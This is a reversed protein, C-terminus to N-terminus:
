NGLPFLIHRVMLLLLQLRAQLHHTATISRALIGGERHLLSEQYHLIVSRLTTEKLTWQLPHRGVMPCHNAKTSGTYTQVLIAKLWAHFASQQRNWHHLTWLLIFSEQLGQLLDFAASTLLAVKLSCWGAFSCVNYKNLSCTLMDIRCLESLDPGNISTYLAVHWATQDLAIWFKRWMRIKSSKALKEEELDCDYSLILQFAKFNPSWQVFILGHQTNCVGYVSTGQRGCSGKGFFLWSSNKGWSNSMLKRMLKRMFVSNRLLIKTLFKGEEYTEGHPNWNRMLKRMLFQKERPFQGVEEHPGWSSVSKGHPGWSAKEVLFEIGWSYRLLNVILLKKKVLFNAWKKMLQEHPKKWSSSQNRTIMIELNQMLFIKSPSFWRAVKKILVEVLDEHPKKWSSISDWNWIISNGRSNGWHAEQGCGFSDKIGRSVRMFVNRDWSLKWSSCVSCCILFRWWLYMYPQFLVFYFVLFFFLFISFIWM